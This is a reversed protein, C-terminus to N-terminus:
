KDFVSIDLQDFGSLLEKMMATIKACDGEGNGEVNLPMNPDHLSQRLLAWGNAEGKFSIRVGEYNPTVIHYGKERALETMIAVQDDLSAIQKDERENSKRAYLGYKLEQLNM